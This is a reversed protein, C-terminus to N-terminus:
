NKRKSTYNNIFTYVENLLFDDCNYECIAAEKILADLIEEIIDM